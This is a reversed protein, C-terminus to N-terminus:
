GHLAQLVGVLEVQRRCGTKHLLHALHARATNVTCGQVAAFDKVTKGAALLLALRAEAPSLGLMEGVLSHDLDALAGPKTAVILAM